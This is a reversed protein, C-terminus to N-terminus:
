GPNVGTAHVVGGLSIEIDADSWNGDEPQTCQGYPIPPGVEVHVTGHGNKDTQITGGPTLCHSPSILRWYYLTEPTFDSIIIQVITETQGLPYNLIAMGDADLGEFSYDVDFSRIKVAGGLAVGVLTCLFVACAIRRVKLM